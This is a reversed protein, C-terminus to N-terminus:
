VSGQMATTIVLVGCVQCVGCLVLSTGRLVGTLKAALSRVAVLGSDNTVCNAVWQLIGRTLVTSSTIKNNKNHRQM